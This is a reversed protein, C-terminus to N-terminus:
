VRGIYHITCIHNAFIKSLTFPCRTLSSVPLLYPYTRFLYPSPKPLIFPTPPTYTRSNKRTKYDKESIFLYYTRSPKKALKYTPVPLYATPVHVGAQKVAEWCSAHNAFSGTFILARPLMHPSPALSFPTLM